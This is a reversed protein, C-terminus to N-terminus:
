LWPIRVALPARRRFLKNSIPDHVGDTPM